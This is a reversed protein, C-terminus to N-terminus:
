VEEGGKKEYTNTENWVINFDKKNNDNEKNQLQGYVKSQRKELFKLAQEFKGNSMMTRKLIKKAEMILFNRSAEIEDLFEENKDKWNYFTQKSIKAYYCAEEITFDNKFGEILKKVIPSDIGQYKTPRTM